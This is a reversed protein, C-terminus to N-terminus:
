LIVLYSINVLYQPSYPDCITKYKIYNSCSITLVVQLYKAYPFVIEFIVLLYQLPNVFLSYKCLYITKYKSCKNRSKFLLNCISQLLSCKNNWIYQIIIPLLNSVQLLKYLCWRPFRFMYFSPVIVLIDRYFFVPLM